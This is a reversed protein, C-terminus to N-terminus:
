TLKRRFPILTAQKFRLKSLHLIHRAGLLAMFHCIPNLETNLTNIHPIDSLSVSNQCIIHAPIHTDLRYSTTTRAAAKPTAAQDTWLPANTVFSHLVERLLRCNTSLCELKFVM